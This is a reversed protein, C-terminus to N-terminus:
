RSDGYGNARVPLDYLRRMRACWNLTRKLTRRVLHLRVDLLRYADLQRDDLLGLRPSMGYPETQIRRSLRPKVHRIEVSPVVNIRLLIPIEVEVTVIARPSLRELWVLQM